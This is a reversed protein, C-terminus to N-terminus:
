LFHPVKETIKLSQGSLRHLTVFIIAIKACIFLFKYNNHVFSRFAGNTTLYVPLFSWVWEYSYTSGRIAITHICIIHLFEM